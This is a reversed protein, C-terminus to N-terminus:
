LINKLEILNTITHTARSDTPGNDPIYHVTDIGAAHAGGIDTELNDGIMIAKKGRHGSLHLAQHFIAPDPKRLGVKESTIISTFYQDLKSYSMKIHQTKEFGNTLIVLPYHPKLYELVEITNPILYSKKPGREIYESSFTEALDKDTLHYHNLFREFRSTRIEVQLIKGKHYDAWLVDNIEKFTNVMQEMETADSKPLFEEFLEVLTEDANRHYDWLTHDLDFLVVEYDSNKM